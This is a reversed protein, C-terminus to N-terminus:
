LSEATRLMYVIMVLAFIAVVATVSVILMRNTRMEGREICRCVVHFHWAALIALMAGFAMMAVGIPLSLHTSQAAGVPNLQMALERLWLGFKAVVFGLSVVALSTRVWALFTREAALIERMNDKTQHPTVTKEREIQLFIPALPMRQDFGAARAVKTVRM